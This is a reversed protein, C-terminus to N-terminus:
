LLGEWFELKGLEEQVQKPAANAYRPAGGLQRIELGAATRCRKSSFRNYVVCSKSLLNVDRMEEMIELAPLVRELKLLSSETGDCVFVIKRVAAMLGILREQFMFDMDLVIVDYRGSAGIEKLLSKVDAGDLETLDMASKPSSYFYVGSDDQKVMGELKLALNSKRSKLAYIVEGFDAQGEGQFYADASGFQELNLYLVKKGKRAAFGAFAVAMSSSGVGGSAPLFLIVQAQNDGGAKLGIGSLSHEAYLSLVQKYFVDIRQYKAITKQERVSEIEPAEVLYAFGCRAPVKEPDVQFESGSLFVDAKASSLKEMAIEQDTFSYIEIKDAYKNTVSSTIRNLYNKDSDLLLLKIKM